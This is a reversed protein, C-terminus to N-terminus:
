VKLITSAPENQDDQIEFKQVLKYLMLTDILM